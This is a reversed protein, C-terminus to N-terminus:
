GEQRVLFRELQDGPVPRSLLYGQLATCQQDALFRRQEETEVGEAVVRLGLNQAMHLMTTVLVTNEDPLTGVFSKDIKLEDLPMQRLYSLSSYGTGFDDISISFGAEKLLHLKACTEDISDAMISETLELCICSSRLGAEQVIGVVREVLDPRRFQLLSINVSAHDIRYGASQWAVVQRAVTALVWEGVPVILGTQELVPIFRDPYIMAGDKPQWRLLAEFGTVQGTMLDQQPQYYVVFEDHELARRLGTELEFREQSRDHLSRSYYEFGNRGRSKALYMAADANRLLTNVDQGDDPYHVIGMSATVFFEQGDIVFPKTFQQMICQACGAIKAQSASNLPLVAFEDGGLRAVLDGHDGHGSLREAVQQLLKDGTQHGLTNNIIKFDDLDLQMLYIGTDGHLPDAMAAELSKALLNRNALGTLQDYHAQQYLLEQHRKKETIDEKVAVFHSIKGDEYVPTIVTSEWFLHGDKHRNCLEGRWSHGSLITQWLQAYLEQSHYGSKLMSTSQGILEDARYGTMREFSPNVYEVIGHTDTVVVTNASQEVVTSLRKILAEQRHKETVDHVMGMLVQENNWTIGTYYIEADFVAGSHLNRCRWDMTTSAGGAIQLMITGLQQHREEDEASLALVTMKQLVEETAGYLVQAPRNVALIEGQLNHIIIGKNTHDFVTRLNHSFDSLRQDLKALLLNFADTLAGIESCERNELALERTDGAVAIALAQQALQELPATIIRSLSSALVLCGLLLLGMGALFYNRFRVIPTYADEIPFNSALIWGTSELHKFSALAHLGRSNVTEGSGEFGQIAQDFLKNTGPPVDKKLLRRRDPHLIITRDKAFIYPYGRNVGQESIFSTFLNNEGMLDFGGCLVAKVAGDDDLIPTVMMVIPHKVVPCLAPDAIFPKKLMVGQRYIAQLRERSTHRHADNSSSAALVGDSDLVFLGHDFPLLLSSHRDLWQQVKRSDGFSIDHQIHIAFRNLLEQTSSIKDDLGRAMNSVMMFQRKFIMERTANKFYLYTGVAVGAMIVTMFLTIFITLRRRISTTNM